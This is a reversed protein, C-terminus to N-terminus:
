KIFGSTKTIYTSVVHYGIDYLDQKMGLTMHRDLFSINGAPLKIIPVGVANAWMETDYVNASLMMGILREAFDIPSSIPGVTTFESVSLGISTTKRPLYNVPLNALVGGDVYQNKYPPFIYPIAMSCYIAEWIQKEPCESSIFAHSRQNIVDTCVATFPIVCDSMTTDTTLERLWSQVNKPSALGNWFGWIRYPILKAFDADFVITKLQSPTLGISILGATISGASTGSVFTPRFHEWLAAWAGVEIPGLTGAGGTAVEIPIFHTKNLTM